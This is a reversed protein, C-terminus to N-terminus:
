NANMFLAAMTRNAPRHALGCAHWYLSVRSVTFHSFHSFFTWPTMHSNMGVLASRDLKRLAFGHHYFSPLNCNCLDTVCFKLSIM